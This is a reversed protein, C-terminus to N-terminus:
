LKGERVLKHLEMRNHAATIREYEMLLHQVDKGYVTELAQKLLALENRVMKLNEKIEEFEKYTM